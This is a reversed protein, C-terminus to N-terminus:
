VCVYNKEFQLIRLNLFLNKNSITNRRSLSNRVLPLTPIQSFMNRSFSLCVLHSFSGGRATTHTAIFLQHSRWKLCRVWVPSLSTDTKKGQKWLFSLGKKLRVRLSFSLFPPFFIMNRFPFFFYFSRWSIKKKFSEFFIVLFVRTPIGRPILSVQTFASFYHTSTQKKM